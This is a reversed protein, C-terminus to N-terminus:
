YAIYWSENITFGHDLLVQTMGTNCIPGTSPTYNARDTYYFYMHKDLSPPLTVQFYARGKIDKYDGM